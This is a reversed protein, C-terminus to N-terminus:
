YDISPGYHQILSTNFWVKQKKGDVFVVAQIFYQNGKQKEKRKLLLMRETQTIVYIDKLSTVIYATEKSKGDGSSKLVELLKEYRVKFYSARTTDGLKSYTFMLEEFGLVSIPFKKFLSDGIIKAKTYKVSDNLFIMETELGVQLVPNYYDTFPYGYYLFNLEKRSLSKPNDMFRKYLGEFNFRHMQDTVTQEIIQTNWEHIKLVPKEQGIILTNIGFTFLLLTLLKSHLM